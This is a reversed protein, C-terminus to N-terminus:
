TGFAKKVSPLTNKMFIMMGTMSILISTRGIIHKEESM